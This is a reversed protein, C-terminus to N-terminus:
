QNLQTQLYRRAEGVSNMKNGNIKILRQSYVEINGSDYRILYIDKGLKDKAKERIRGFNDTLGAFKLTEELEAAAQSRAFAIPIM